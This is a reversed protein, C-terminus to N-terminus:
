AKRGDDGYASMFANCNDCYNDGEWLVDVASVSWGTQSWGRVVTDHAVQRFNDRACKPCLIGGDDMIISIPYGGPWAYPQRIADKVQKMLETKM